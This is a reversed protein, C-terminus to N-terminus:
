KVWLQGLLPGFQASASWNDVRAATLAFWSSNLIPVAVADDVLERDITALLRRGAPPDTLELNVARYYQATARRDCSHGFNAYGHCIFNNLAGSGDNSDTYAAMGIQAPPKAANLANVYAVLDHFPKHTTARYGIERLTRVFPAAPPENTTAPGWVTVVDGYTGSERVLKRATALDPGKWIGDPNPNVTYPCYPHFGTAGRPIIQCTPVFTNARRRARIIEARDIAYNVAKRALVNDFPPETPNLFAVGLTPSGQDRLFVPHATVADRVQAPPIDQDDLYDIRGQEIDSLNKPSSPVIHIDITDVYGEPQAARSWQHFYPNRTLVIHQPWDFRSVEYPGTGVVYPHKGHFLDYWSVAPTRSPLIATALDTLAALFAPEPRSLRFRVTREADNVLIGRSLDCPGPLADPHKTPRKLCAPAGMIANLPSSPDIGVRMTREFTARVDSARVLAGTSFRIAARLRFVYETTHADAV